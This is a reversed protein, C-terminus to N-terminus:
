KNGKKHVIYKNIFHDNTMVDLDKIKSWNGLINEKYNGHENTINRLFLFRSRTADLAHCDTFAPLCYILDYLYYNLYQQFFLNSIKENNKNLIKNNFAIFGTETYYGLRDYLSVFIDDEMCKNYWDEPIQQKFETDADIFFIHDGYKRADNQTFVKFSFRIADLIYSVKATEIHKDKNRKIFKYLEPQQDFLNLYHIDKHKPYNSIDDEVYCFLPLVQKTSIYSDILKKAYKKYLTNNFTTVFIKKM